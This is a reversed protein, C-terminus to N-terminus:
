GRRRSNFSLRFRGSVRNERSGSSLLEVAVRGDDAFRQQLRDLAEFDPTDCTVLLAGNRFTMEEVRADVVPLARAVVSLMVLFGDGRASGELRALRQAMQARPEVIRTMDPFTEKLTAEIERELQGARSALTFHDYADVGVRITLALGLVLAAAKIWARAALAEASDPGHQLLNVDAPVQHGHQLWDVFNAGIHWESVRTAGRDALDRAQGADNVAVALASDAAAQWWLALEPEDIVLGDCEGTRIVLRGGEDRAVTARGATHQPVVLYDPVLADTAGPLARIEERWRAMTERAMVAVRSEGGRVWRLLRFELEDVDSALSEELMYPVAAVAKARSRAPIRLTHLTVLEGPVIGVRRTVRHDGAPMQALSSEAGSDVVRDRRDVLAWRHPPEVAYYLIV